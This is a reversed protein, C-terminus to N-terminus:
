EISVEHTHEGSENNEPGTQLVQELSVNEMSILHFHQEERESGTSIMRGRRGVVTGM